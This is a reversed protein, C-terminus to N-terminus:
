PEAAPALPSLSVWGARIPVLARGVDACVGTVRARVDLLGPAANAVGARGSDDTAAVDVEPTLGRFYFPVAAPDRDGLELSVGEAALGLCDIAFLIAVGRSPDLTIGASGAGLEVTADSPALFTQTVDRVIPQALGAIVHYGDGEFDVYGYFTGSIADIPVEALVASGEADTTVPAVVPQTCGLDLRSCARVTRGALPENDLVDRFRLTITITATIAEPAEVSGVCSWRASVGCQTEVCEDIARRASAGEAHDNECRATCTDDGSLCAEECVRLLGCDVSAACAEAAPCCTAPCDSDCVGAPGIAVGGCPPGCATACSRQVCAALAATAARYPSAGDCADHCAADDPGCGSTCARRAACDPDADCAAIEPCCAAAACTDCPGVGETPACAGSAAQRDDIGVVQRCSAM